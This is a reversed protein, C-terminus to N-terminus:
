ASQSDNIWKDLERAGALFKAHEQESNVSRVWNDFRKNPGCTQMLPHLPAYLEATGNARLAIAPPSTEFVILGSSRSEKVVYPGKLGIYTYGSPPALEELLKSRWIMYNNSEDHCLIERSYARLECCFPWAPQLDTCLLYINTLPGYVVAGYVTMSEKSPPTFVWVRAFIGRAPIGLSTPQMLPLADDTGALYALPAEFIYRPFGVHCALAMIAKLMSRHVNQASIEMPLRGHHWLKDESTIEGPPREWADGRVSGDTSLEIASKDGYSWKRAKKPSDGKPIINNPEGDANDLNQMLISIPAIRQEIKGIEGNCAACSFEETTVYGEFLRPIIHEKSLSDFCRDCIWCRAM